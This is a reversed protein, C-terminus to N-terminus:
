AKPAGIEGTISGLYKANLTVPRPKRLEALVTAELEAQADNQEDQMDAIENVDVRLLALQAQLDHLAAVIADPPVPVPPPTPVPQPTPTPTPTPTPSPVPVTAVPYPERWRAANIPGKNSWAPKPTGKEPPDAGEADAIVDLHDCVGSPHLYTLIDIARDRWRNGSTKELLGFGADIAHLESAIQNLITFTREKTADNNGGDVRRLGLEQCRRKLYASHDPVEAVPKPEPTPVIPPPKPVPVPVPAPVAERPFNALDALDMWLLVVQREQLKSICFALRNGDRAFRVFRCDGPEIVYRRDGHLVLCGSHEGQGATLDGYTTYEYIRRAKDAYTADGLVLGGSESVYRYGQSTGGAIIHLRGQKDFIHGSAGISTRPDRHWKGDHWHLCGGGAAAQGAIQFGGVETIRPYLARDITYAIPGRHTVMEVLTMVAYAGSTLIDGYRGGAVSLRKVM